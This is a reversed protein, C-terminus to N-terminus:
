RTIVDIGSVSGHSLLAMDAVAGPKQYYCDLKLKFENKSSLYIKTGVSRPKRM